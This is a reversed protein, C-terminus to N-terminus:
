WSPCSAVVTFTVTESVQLAIAYLLSASRACAVASNDVLGCFLYTSTVGEYSRYADGDTSHCHRMCGGGKHEGTLSDPHVVHRVRLLLQDFAQNCALGFLLREISQLVQRPYLLGRNLVYIVIRSHGFIWAQNV